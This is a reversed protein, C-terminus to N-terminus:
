SDKPSLINKLIRIWGEVDSGGTKKENSQLRFLESGLYYVHGKELTLQGVLIFDKLGIFADWDPGKLMVNGQLWSPNEGHEFAGQLIEADPQLVFANPNNRLYYSRGFLCSSDGARGEVVPFMKPSQNILLLNGGRRIYDEIKAVEEATYPRDSNPGALVVMRYKSYDEPSLYDGCEEYVVQPLERDLVNRIISQVESRGYGNGAVLGIAQDAHASGPFGWSLSIGMVIVSLFRFNM